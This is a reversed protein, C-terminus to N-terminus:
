SAKKAGSRGNQREELTRIRGELDALELIKAQGQVVGMVTSAESPTIDGSAMAAMVAKGQDALSSDGKFGEINVPREFFKTHRSILEVAKSAGAPNVEKAEVEVAQGDIILTKPQPKVGLCMDRLLCLDDMMKQASVGAKESRKDMAEQIAAAVKPKRLLDSASSEAAKASSKPYAKRYAATANQEPDTLYEDVFKQQQDTLKNPNKRAM